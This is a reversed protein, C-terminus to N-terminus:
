LLKGMEENTIFIVQFVQYVYLIKEGLGFQDTHIELPNAQPDANKILMWTIKLILFM